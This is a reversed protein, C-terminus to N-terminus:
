EIATKDSAFVSTKVKGCIEVGREFGEGGAVREFWEVQM